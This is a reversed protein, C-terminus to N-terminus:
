RRYIVQLGISRPPDPLVQTVGLSGAYTARYNSTYTDTLNRGVLAIQWRSDITRLAIRANLKAFAGQKLFPDIASSVYYASSFRVDSDLDLILRDNLPFEYQVSMTGSLAPAWATVRGTLNQVCAAQEQALQVITCSANHYDRYRSHLYSIDASLKVRRLPSISGYVEVGRAVSSGINGVRNVIGGDALALTAAGQLNYYRNEFASFTLMGRRDSSGLKFGIEFADVREADFDSKSTFVSYGGGKFGRAYSAYIM